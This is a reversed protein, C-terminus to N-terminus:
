NVLQGTDRGRVVVLGGGSASGKVASSTQNPGCVSIEESFDILLTNGDDKEASIALKERVSCSDVAGEGVVLPAGGEDSCLLQKVSHPQAVTQRQIGGFLDRQFQAVARQPQLSASQSDWQFNNVCLWCRFPSSLSQACLECCVVGQPCPRSSSGCFQIHMQDTFSIPLHCHGCLMESANNMSSGQASM